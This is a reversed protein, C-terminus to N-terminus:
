GRHPTDLHALVTGALTELSEMARKGSIKVRLASEMRLALKDQLVELEGGSYGNSQPLFLARTGVDMVVKWKPADKSGEGTELKYFSAADAPTHFRAIQLQLANIVNAKGAYSAWICGSYIPARQWNPDVEVTPQIAPSRGSNSGIASAVQASSLDRCANHLNISALSSSQKSAPPLSTTTPTDKGPRLVTTPTTRAGTTTTSVHLASLTSPKSHHDKIKIDVAVAIGAVVVLGGLTVTTFRV